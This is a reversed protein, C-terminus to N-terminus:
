TESRVWEYELNMIVTKWEGDPMYFEQELTLYVVRDEWQFDLIKTKYESLMFNEEYETTELAISEDMSDIVISSFLDKHSMCNLYVRPDNTYNSYSVDFAIEQYSTRDVITCDYSQLLLTFGCYPIEEFFDTGEVGDGNFDIPMDTYATKLVYRGLVEDFYEQNVQPSLSNDDDSDCSFLSLVPLLIILYKM